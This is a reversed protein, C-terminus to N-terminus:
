TSGVKFLAALLIRLFENDVAVITFRARWLPFTLANFPRPFYLVTARTTDSAITIRAHTDPLPSPPPPVLAFDDM